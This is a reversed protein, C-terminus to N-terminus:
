GCAGTRLWLVEASRLLLRGHIVRRGAVGGAASTADILVLPDGEVAPRLVPVLVGTSTENQAWALVDVREGERSQAIAAPDPASGPDAAIVLPEALFPAETAVQAFKSSFEGYSLHLSRREILGCAAADWFATAGGNGLVVEYGGPLSFLEGLGARIDAVLSKVPKQRHSTGM